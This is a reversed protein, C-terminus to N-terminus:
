ARKDRQMRVQIGTSWRNAFVVGDRFEVIDIGSVDSVVPFRLTKCVGQVECHFDDSAEGLKADWRSSAFAKAAHLTDFIRVPVDDHGSRAVVLFM